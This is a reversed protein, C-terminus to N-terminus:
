RRRRLLLGVLGLVGALLGAPSSGSSCGGGVRRQDDEFDCWELGTDYELDDPTCHEQVESFAGAADTFALYVCDADAPGDFRITSKSGSLLFVDLEEEASREATPFAAVSWGAEPATVTALIETRAEQCQDWNMPTWGGIETRALGEVTQRAGTLFSWSSPSPEGEVEQLNLVSVSIESDAPLPSDPVWSLARYASAFPAGSSSSVSGSLAKGDPGEVLVAPDATGLRDWGIRVLVRADVPVGRAGMEPFARIDVSAAPDCAEASSLALLLTLM